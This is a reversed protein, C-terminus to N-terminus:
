TVLESTDKCPTGKKEMEYHCRKCENPVNKHCQSNGQRFVHSCGCKAYSWRDRQCIRDTGWGRKGLKWSVLCNGSIRSCKYSCKEVQNQVQPESGQARSGILYSELGFLFFFFVYYARVM